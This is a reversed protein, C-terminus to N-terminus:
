FVEKYHKIIASTPVHIKRLMKTSSTITHFIKYRKCIIHANKNLQKIIVLGRASLVEFLNKVLTLKLYFTKLTNVAFKKTYKTRDLWQKLLNMSYKYDKIM